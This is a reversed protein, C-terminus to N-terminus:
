TKKFERKTILEQYKMLKCADDVRGCIVGLHLSSWGVRLINCMCWRARVEHIDLVGTCSGWARRFIIDRPHRCGGVSESETEAGCKLSIALYNCLVWWVQNTSNNDSPNRHLIIANHNQNRCLCVRWWSFDHCMPKMILEAHNLIKYWLESLDDWM